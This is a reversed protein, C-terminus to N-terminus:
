FLRSFTSSVIDYIVYSNFSDSVLMIFYILVTFFGTCYNVFAVYHWIKSKMSRLPNICRGSVQGSDETKIGFTISVLIVFAVVVLSASFQRVTVLTEYRMPQFVSFSRDLTLSLLTFTALLDCFLMPAMTLICKQPDLLLFHEQFYGVTQYVGFLMTYFCVISKLTAHFFLLTNFRDETPVLRRKLRSKANLIAFLLLISILGGIISLIIYFLINQLWFEQKTAYIGFERNSGHKILLSKNYYPM